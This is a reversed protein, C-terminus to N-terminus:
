TARGTRTDDAQGARPLRGATVLGTLTAGLPADIRLQALDDCRTPGQNVIAVPIGKQSARLVFRRGSFVQLSSGLVLLVSAAELMRYSAAVRDHPVGEGFFVVDPKLAGGCDQCGVVVFQQVARDDVEVDGDPQAVQTGSGWGPNAADLRHRLDARSTRAGCELCVVRDLRGHLDVVARSGAAQHLGDVNQTITGVVVGLEELSRVARHGENPEARSMLAWGLHSRAWYRRRADDSGRFEQGTMPARRRTAAARPGRYDPIGSETSLGAGSLVVVRGHSVLQALRTVDVDLDPM